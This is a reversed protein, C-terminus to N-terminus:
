LVFPSQCHIIETFFDTKDPRNRIKKTTGITGILVLINHQGQSNQPPKITHQLWGLILNKSLKFTPRIALDCVKLRNKVPRSTLTKMVGTMESELLEFIIMVIDGGIQRLIDLAERPTSTLNNLIKTKLILNGRKVVKLIVAQISKDRLETLNIQMRINHRINLHSIDELLKDPPKIFGTILFSSIM